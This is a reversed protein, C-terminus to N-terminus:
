GISIIVVKMVLAPFKFGRKCGESVSLLCKFVDKIEPRIKLHRFIFIESRFYPIPLVFFHRKLLHAVDISSRDM